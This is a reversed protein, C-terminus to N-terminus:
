QKSAALSRMYTVSGTFYNVLQDRPPLCEKILPIEIFSQTWEHLSPFKEADVLKMGGVEEMVNLWYPIWGLALDLYGIQEGNFFKKGKIQEELMAFSEMASEIAKEKEEGEKWCAHFAGYLCKDDAFKAWFRAMAREYPDQPFLPNKNWTEDIYELIVLSEAIPKEEHVLVPVKKHVPNVKLLIPSKNRLDEKLYEYEVGKIKLAWEVRTCFLSTYSGIVKVEGM